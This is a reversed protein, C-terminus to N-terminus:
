NLHIWKGHCAIHHLLPHIFRWQHHHLASNCLNLNRPTLDAPQGAFSYISLSVETMTIIGCDKPIVLHLLYDSISFIFPNESLSSSVGSLNCCNHRKWNVFNFTIQVLKWFYFNTPIPPSLITDFTGAAAARYLFLPIKPLSLWGAASNVWVSKSSFYKQSSIYAKSIYISVNLHNNFVYLCWFFLEEWLFPYFSSSM